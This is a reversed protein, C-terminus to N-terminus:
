DSERPPLNEYILKVGLLEELLTFLELLSLSNRMGGGINFAEGACRDINTTAYIYLQVIDDAHLVDRVQKGNGSITFPLESIALGFPRIFNLSLLLTCLLFFYNSLM